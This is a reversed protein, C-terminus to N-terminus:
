SANAPANVETEITQTPVEGARSSFFFMLGIIVLLVVILLIVARPMASPDQKAPVLASKGGARRATYGQEHSVQGFAKITRDDKYAQHTGALRRDAPAQCLTQAQREDIRVRRNGFAGGAIRWRLNELSEALRIEPIAFPPQDRPKDVVLDPNDGGAALNEDVRARAFQEVVPRDRDPEICGDVQKGIPGPPKLRPRQKAVHSIAALRQFPECAFAALEIGFRVEVHLAAAAGVALHDFLNDQSEVLM